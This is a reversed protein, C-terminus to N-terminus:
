LKDVSIWEDRCCIATQLAAWQAGTFNKAFRDMSANDLAYETSRSKTHDEYELMVWGATAVFVAIVDGNKAASYVEIAM